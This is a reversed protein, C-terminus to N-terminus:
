RDKFHHAGNFVRVPELEFPDIDELCGVNFAYQQPNSRQQHHTYIGCKSCFYHRATRTNFQYLSLFTEGEIIRLSNLPVSAMITGRRRCMSCNCREVEVLGKPLAVEFKIAGCHCSAKHIPKLEM